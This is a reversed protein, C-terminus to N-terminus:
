YRPTCQDDNNNDDGGAAPMMLSLDAASATQPLNVPRYYAYFEARSIFGDKNTDVTSFDATMAANNYEEPGLINNQYKDLISFADDAAVSTHYVRHYATDAKAPLSTILSCGVIVISLLRTFNKM